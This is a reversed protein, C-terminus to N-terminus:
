EGGIWPTQSGGNEARAKIGQLMKREMVFTIAETIHWLVHNAFNPPYGNRGRVLLRTTGVPQEELLFAWTASKVAQRTVPDLAFLVLAKEPQIDAVVQGPFKKEAPGFLVPDGPKLDQHEPLIRDTSHIECGILNELGDYSYLGGRGQGIQVLWPWVSAAPADITIARTYALRPSPVYEDGPFPRSAEEETAGWRNYWLRSLPATLLALAVQLAGTLTSTKHNTSAVVYEQIGCTRSLICGPLIGKM